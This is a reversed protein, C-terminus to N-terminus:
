PDQENLSANTEIMKATEEDYRLRLLEGAITKNFELLKKEAAKLTLDYNKILLFEMGNSASTLDQAVLEIETQYRQRESTLVLFVLLLGIVFASFSEVYTLFQSLGSVPTITSLQFHAITGFSYGVFGIFSTTGAFANPDLKSLGQYEFAFIISTLFFTYFLSTILYLDLRRSEQLVKLKRSIVALGTSYSYLNLICQGYAQEYEPTGEEHKKLSDYVSNSATEWFARISQGFKGFVTSSAFTNRVRRAYHWLLYLGLLVISIMVLISHQGWLIVACSILAITFLVFNIKFNRLIPYIAPTFALVTPWNKLLYRPFHWIVLVLPYALIYGAFSLFRKTRLILWFIAIVSLIILFRFKFIQQFSLSFSLVPPALDVVFLHIIISIWILLASIERIWRVPRALKFQEVFESFTIKPKETMENYKAHNVLNKRAKICWV